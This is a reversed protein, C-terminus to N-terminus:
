SQGPWAYFNNREPLIDTAKSSLSCIEFGTSFNEGGESVASDLDRFVNADSSNESSAPTAEPPILHVRRLAEYQSTDAVFFFALSLSM